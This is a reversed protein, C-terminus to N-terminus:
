LTIVTALNRHQYRLSIPFQRCAVDTFASLVEFAVSITYFSWTLSLKPALLQQPSIYKM